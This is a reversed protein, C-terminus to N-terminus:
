FEPERDRSPEEPTLGGFRAQQAKAELDEKLPPNLKEAVEEVRSSYQLEQAVARGQFQYTSGYWEGSAVEGMEGPSVEVRKVTGDERLELLYYGEVDGRDDRITGTVTMVREEVEERKLFSTGLDDQLAQLVPNWIGKVRAEIESHTQLYALSEETLFGMRAEEELRDKGKLYHAVYALDEQSLGLVQPEFRAVYPEEVKQGSVQEYVEPPLVIRVADQDFRVTISELRGNSEAFLHLNGEKVDVMVGVEGRELPLSQIEYRGRPLVEDWEKPIDRRGLIEAFREEAERDVQSLAEVLTRYTRQVEEPSTGSQPAYEVPILYAGEGKQEMVYITAM